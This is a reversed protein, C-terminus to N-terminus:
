GGSQPRYANASAGLLELLEDANQFDRKIQTGLREVTGKLTADADFGRAVRLVFYEFRPHTGSGEDMSASGM